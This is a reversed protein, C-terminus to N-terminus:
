QHWMIRCLIPGDFHCGGRHGSLAVARDAQDAACVQCRHLRGCNNFSRARSSVGLCDAGRNCLNDSVRSALSSRAPKEPWEHQAFGPFRDIRVSGSLHRQPRRKFLRRLSGRRWYPVGFSGTRCCLQGQIADGPTALLLAAGILGGCAAVTVITRLRLEGEAKIDDRYAWASGIYGSLATLTATATAMIPPVDPWAFASFSVLTGGGAIANVGGALLGAIVRVFTSFM